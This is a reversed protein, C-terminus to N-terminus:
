EEDAIRKVKLDKDEATSPISNGLPAGMDIGVKNM